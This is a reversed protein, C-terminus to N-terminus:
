ALLVAKVPDDQAARPGPERRVADDQVHGQADSWTARLEPERFAFRELHRWLVDKLREVGEADAAEVEIALVAENAKLRIPGALFALRAEDEFAEVEIKHAFHKSLQALYKRANPTELRAQAQPM